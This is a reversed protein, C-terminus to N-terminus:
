EQVAAALDHDTRDDDGHLLTLQAEDIHEAAVKAFNGVDGNWLGHRRVIAEFDEVDHPAVALIADGDENYRVACHCLEHDVLAVRQKSTILDWVDKAIEVVFFPDLEAAEDITTPADERPIGLFATLGTVKRASGWVDRGRRRAAKDRFLFEIRVDKLHHHHSTILNRAIVAVEDAYAYTAM